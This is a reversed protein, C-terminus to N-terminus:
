PRVVRPLYAPLPPPGYLSKVRLAPDGFVNFTLVLDPSIGATILRLRGADALAGLRREGDKLMAEFFRQAFLDHGTAVGLGTPSITAVAGGDAQALFTEALTKGPPPYYWFGDLCTLSLIVPLRDNKMTPVMGTYGMFESAWGVRSGHGIYVAVLAGETQITSTFAYRADPCQPGGPVGCLDNGDLITTSNGPRALIESSLSAASTDFQGAQDPVNDHMFLFNRQWYETPSQEYAVIKDVVNQLEDPTSATIRGIHVDPIMDEGIVMALLPTADVEGQWPDIVALNPPMFNDNSQYLSSNVLNFHGDGVLLAYAPKITWSVLARELYNRVAIPHRIGFNHQDYLDAVDVVKVGLGQGARYNALAQTGALLSQHAVMIYDAGEGANLDAPQAYRLSPPTQAANSGFVAFRAPADLSQQFDVQGATLRVGSIMVPLIPNTIDLAYVSPSAFGTIEFQNPGTTLWDFIIQDGSASFTRWYDVEFYDFYGSEPGTPNKELRVKLHNSGNILALAPVSGSFYSRGIGSFNAAALVASNAPHNFYYTTRHNTLNNRWAMSGRVVAAPATSDVADLPIEYTYTTTATAQLRPTYFFVDENTFHWSWWEEQKEARVTAQYSTPVPATDMPQANRSLMLGGLSSEASLWYVNETAFKEFLGKLRCAPCLMFWADMRGTYFSELYTGDFEEGYFLLSEGSEFLADGDDELFFGVPRGQNYLHYNRPDHDVDFGLTSLGAYTLRYLGDRTIGIRAAPQGTHQGPYAEDLSASLNSAIARWDLGQQYNLITDSLVQEFASDASLQPLMQQASIRAPDLRIAANIQPYWRLERRAPNYQFPSYAIRVVRQTRIWAEEVVWVPSDPFWRDQNAINSFPTPEKLGPTLDDVLGVPHPAPAIQFSGAIPTYAVPEVVLHYDGQPPLAVLAQQSPLSPTEPSDSLTMGPVSLITLEEGGSMSTQMDYSAASFTLNIRTSNSTEALAISSDQQTLVPKTLSSLVQRTSPNEPLVGAAAPATLGLAMGM